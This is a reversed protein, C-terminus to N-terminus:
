DTRPTRMVKQVCCNSRINLLQYASETQQCGAREPAPTHATRVKSIVVAHLPRLSQNAKLDIGLGAHGLGREHWFERRVRPHPEFLQYSPHHLVSREVTSSAQPRAGAPRRPLPADAVLAPDRDSGLVDM